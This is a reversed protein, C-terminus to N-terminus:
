STCAKEDAMTLVMDRSPLQRIAVAEGAGTGARSANLQEILEKYLRNKQQILETGQVVIIERKHRTLIHKYQLTPLIIPRKPAGAGAVATYSARPRDPSKDSAEIRDVLKQITHQLTKIAEKTRSPTLPTIVVRQVLEVMADLEAQVSKPAKKEKLYADVIKYLEFLEVLTCETEQNPTTLRSPADAIADDVDRNSSGSSSGSGSGSASRQSRAPECDPAM